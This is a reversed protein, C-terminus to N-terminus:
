EAGQEAIQTVKVTLAPEVDRLAAALDEAESRGSLPGVVFLDHGVRSLSSDGALTSVTRKMEETLAEVGAIEVRFAATRDESEVDLNHFEGDRWVVVEPRKFGRERLKQKAADAEVKTAFGGAVYNWKGRDDIFYFLPSTGRFISVPRQESFTGLLVRYITGSSYVRCKPIPNKATYKPTSSFAISDFTMFNRREIEVTPLYEDVATLKMYADSLSDRAMGLNLYDAIALEYDLVVRKRRYYDSLPMSALTENREAIDHAASLLSEEARALVVDQNWLDLLYGYAYNKSDFIYNWADALKDSLQMNSRRLASYSEYIEAAETEDRVAAYAEKLEVIDGYNVLFEEVYLAVKPELEQARVLAEYDAEGLKERFIDNYVLNRHQEAAPIVPVAGRDVVETESPQVAELNALVWEQEIAEIQRGLAARSNGVEFVSSELQLIEATLSEKDGTNEALSRRLKAITKSLSDEMKLLEADRQLLAMYASDAALAAIRPEVTQGYLSGTLLLLAAVLFSRRFIKIAVM